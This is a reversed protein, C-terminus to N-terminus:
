IKLYSFLFGQPLSMGRDDLAAANFLPRKRVEYSAASRQDVQIYELLSSTTTFFPAARSLSAV